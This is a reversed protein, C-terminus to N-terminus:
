KLYVNLYDRVLKDIDKKIWKNKKLLDKHSKTIRISIVEQLPNETKKRGRAM